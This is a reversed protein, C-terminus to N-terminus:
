SRADPSPETIQQTNKPYRRLWEARCEQLQVVYVPRVTRKDASNRPDAMYRAAKGMQILKEDTMNRIRQRFDEVNWEAITVMEPEQEAV